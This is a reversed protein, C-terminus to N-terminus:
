LISNLNFCYKEKYNKVKIFTKFSENKSVKQLVALANVHNACYVTYAKFLDACKM